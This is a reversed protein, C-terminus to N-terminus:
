CTVRPNLLAYTGAPNHMWVWAILSYNPMPAGFPPSRRDVFPQEGLSPASSHTADWLASPIFYQVAALRVTGDNLPVYLLLEPETVDIVGDFILSQKRYRIGEGALCQTAQAYGAAIAVNVDHFQATAARAEALVSGQTSATARLELREDEPAMVSSDCATVAFLALALAKGSNTM